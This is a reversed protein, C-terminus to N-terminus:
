TSAHLRLKILRDQVSAKNKQAVSIEGVGLGSSNDLTGSYPQVRTTHRTPTVSGFFDTVRFTSLPRKLETTLYKFRSNLNKFSYIPFLDNLTATSSHTLQECFDLTLHTFRDVVPQGIDFDNKYSLSAEGKVSSGTAVVNPATIRSVLTFAECTEVM